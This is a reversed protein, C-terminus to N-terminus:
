LLEEWVSENEDRGSKMKQVYTLIDHLALILELTFNKQPLRVAPLFRPRYLHFCQNIAKSLFM